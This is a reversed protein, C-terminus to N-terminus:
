SYVLKYSEPYEKQILTSRFIELGVIFTDLHALRKSLSLSFLMVYVTKYFRYLSYFLSITNPTEIILFGPVIDVCVSVVLSFWLCPYRLDAHEIPVGSRSLSFALFSALRM